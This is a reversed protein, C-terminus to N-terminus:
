PAPTLGYRRMVAGIAAPDPSGGAADIVAALERFYDPGLIGPSVIALQKADVDGRNEFRHVAGRRICLVEGPGVTRQEGDITWTVVGELGYVTEEYADHSHEVKVNAQAPVAFEFVAVSGGSQEGELLFRIVLQGIRIEEQASSAPSLSM